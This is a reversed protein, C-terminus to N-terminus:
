YKGTNSGKITVQTSWNGKAGPGEVLNSDSASSPMGDYKKVSPTNGKGVNASNMPTDIQDASSGKIGPSNTMDAM